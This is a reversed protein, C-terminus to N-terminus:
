SAAIFDKLSFVNFFIISFESSLRNLETATGLCIYLNPDTNGKTTLIGFYFTKHPRMVLDAEHCQQPPSVEGASPWPEPYTPRVAALAALSMM